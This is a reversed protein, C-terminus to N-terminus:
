SPKRERLWALLRREFEPRDNFAEWLGAAELEARESEVTYQSRDYVVRMAHGGPGIFDVFYDGGFSFSSYQSAVPAYGLDRIAPLLTALNDVVGKPLQHAM